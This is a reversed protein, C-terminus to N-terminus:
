PSLLICRSRRRYPNGVKRGKIPEWEGTSFIYKAKRPDIPTRAKINTVTENQDFLVMVNQNDNFRVKKKGNKNKYIQNKLKRLGRLSTSKLYSLGTKLYGLGPIKSCLNGVRKPISKITNYVTNPSFIVVGLSTTILATIALKVKVNRASLSQSWFKNCFRKQNKGKEEYHQTTTYASNARRKAEKKEENKKNNKYHRQYLGQDQPNTTSNSTSTCSTSTTQTTVSVLASTTLMILVLAAPVALTSSKKTKISNKEYKKKNTRGTNVNM